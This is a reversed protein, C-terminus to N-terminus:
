EIPTVLVLRQLCAYQIVMTFWMKLLAPVFDRFFVGQWVLFVVNISCVTSTTNVTIYQLCNRYKAQLHTFQSVYSADFACFSTVDSIFCLGRHVVVAATQIYPFCQVNYVVLEQKFQTCSLTKATLLGAM